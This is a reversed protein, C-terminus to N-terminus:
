YDKSVKVSVRNSGQSAVSSLLSLWRTLSIEIQTATYGKADTALEVYVNRGIYKGAAVSTGRGTTKDAGNVKLRDLGTVRRLANVPNLGGGSGGRLQAVAAALQLAEPASLDTVSSGFLLRSLVEDEPLAPTSTFAIEPRFASGGINLVATLGTVNATAQIDVSPNPPYEGTFRIEGRDLRFSKGSFEYTGRALTARGTIEPQTAAGGIRVDAGWDSDLGLGRVNFRSRAVAHLALRWQTEPDAPRRGTPPRAGIERVKLEPVQEAPTTGLQYRASDIRVDGSILGGLPGLTIQAPGSVATRLMDTKIMLANTLQAKLDASLGGDATYSVRGAGTLSGDGARGAVRTITLSPGDFRGDLDLATITTGLAAAELRAGRATLTGQVQPEGLHGGISAAAAIPGRLDLATVGALPWLAEAPAQLRVQGSLPAALLREMAPTAADGPISPLAAQMAALVKGERRIFARAAGQTGRLAAAAEIEVPLSSVGLGARSFRSVLLRLNGQPLGQAPLVLDAHGSVGGRMDLAGVAALDDLQIGALDATLRTDAGRTGSITARGDAILLTAPALRWGNADRTAVAPAALRIPQGDIDGSAALQVRGPAAVVDAAVNFPADAIGSAALHGTGAGHAYRANLSARTLRTTGRTVDTLDATASGEVGSTPLLLSAALRGRGVTLAGDLAPLRAKVLALALDARQVGGQASLRVNGNIGSGTLALTGAYVAGAPAIRGRATVGAITLARVDASLGGATALGIDAVFPGYSSRGRATVDFGSASPRVHADVAALGLGLGPSALALDATPRALTGAASLEVPGYDASRGILRARITDGPGLAAAGALRLRPAAITLADVRATGDPTLALRGAVTPLGGALTRAAEADLRTARATVPGTVVTGIGRPGPAVALRAALDAVGVGALAYSPM